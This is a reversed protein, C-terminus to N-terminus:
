RATAARRRSLLGDVSYKGAGALLLLTYIFLYLLPLEKKGFPDDAHAVFAAVLMTVILPLVALRTAAGVLILLSGGAEALAALTLSVGSGLGLPDGFAFNGSLVKQLKPLGHTLMLCAVGIRLLLLGVHMSPANPTTAFFRNM